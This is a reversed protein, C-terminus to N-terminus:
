LPNQLIYEAVVERSRDVGSILESKLLKGDDRSQGNDIECYGWIMYNHGESTRCLYGGSNEEVGIFYWKDYTWLNPSRRKVRVPAGMDAINPKRWIENKM